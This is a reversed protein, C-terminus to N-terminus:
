IVRREVLFRSNTQFLLLPDIKQNPLLNLEGSRMLSPFIKHQLIEKARKDESDIRDRSHEVVRNSESSLFCRCHRLLIDRSYGGPASCVMEGVRFPLDCDFCIPSAYLIKDYKRVRRSVFIAYFLIDHSPFLLPDLPTRCPSKENMYHRWGYPQSRDKTVMEYARKMNIAGVRSSAIHMKMRRYIGPVGFYFIKTVLCVGATFCYLGKFCYIFIRVKLPPLSSCLDKMKISFHLEPIVSLVATAIGFSLAVRYIMALYLLQDQSVRLAITILAILGYASWLTSHLIMLIDIRYRCVDMSDTVMMTAVGSGLTMILWIINLIFITTDEM